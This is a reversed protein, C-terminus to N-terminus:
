EVGAEADILQQMSADMMEVWCVWCYQRTMGDPWHPNAGPSLVMEIGVNPGQDGHVPCLYKKAQPWAIAMAHKTTVMDDSM